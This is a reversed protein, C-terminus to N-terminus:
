RKLLERAERYGIGGFRGGCWVDEEIMRICICIM